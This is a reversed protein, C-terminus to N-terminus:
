TKAKKKFVTINFVYQAAWLKLTPNLKDIRYKPQDHVVVILYKGWRSSLYKLWMVMHVYILIM